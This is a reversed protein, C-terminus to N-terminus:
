ELLWGHQTLTRGIKQERKKRQNDKQIAIKRQEFKKGSECWWILGNSFNRRIRKKWVFSCQSNARKKKRQKPQRQTTDWDVACCCCCCFFWCYSYIQKHPLDSTKAVSALAREEGCNKMGNPLKKDVNKLSDFCVTEVRAGDLWWASSLWCWCM